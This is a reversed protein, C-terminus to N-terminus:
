SCTQFTLYLRKKIDGGGYSSDGGHVGDGGVDKRMIVMLLHVEMMLEAVVVVVLAVVMLTVLKVVLHVVIVETLGWSSCLVVALVKCTVSLVLQIFM